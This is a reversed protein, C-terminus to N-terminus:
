FDFDLILAFQNEKSPDDRGVQRHTFEAHLAVNVATWDGMYYRLLGSYAKIERDCDSDPPKVWNYLASAVLRNNLLGAWDLEVFGGSYKYDEDALPTLKKSDVGQMFLAQLNLTKWNLTANGGMRYFTENTESEASSTMAYGAGHPPQWGYYAFAALRQGASQGDGRKLTKSLNMYVDKHKNNDPNGGNGNVVGAAYKLGCKSHGTAELGMQNDDFNYDVGPSAFGYVEYPQLLYYSRKSSIVHYAPEFRGVRLNLLDPVINSFVLNASELTALQSPNSGIEGPGSPDAAPEDIRPTYIFMFSVNKHLVGAALFDFGFINFTNTTTKRNGTKTDDLLFGTTTRIALPPPTDFVTKEGGVQGPIQYGNDRFRQGFDNLKIFAVHCMNCNFGHKRAFAPIADSQDPVLLFVAAALLILAYVTRM